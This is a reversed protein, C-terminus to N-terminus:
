ASTPQVTVRRTQRGLPLRGRRPRGRPARGAVPHAAGGAGSARGPRGARPQGGGRAAAALAARGALTGPHAPTPPLAGRQGAGGAEEGRALRRLEEYVLWRLGLNPRHLPASPAFVPRRRTRPDHCGSPTHSRRLRGPSGGRVLSAESSPPLARREVPELFGAPTPSSIRPRATALSLCCKRRQGVPRASKLFSTRSRPLRRWSARPYTVKQPGTTGASRPPSRSPPSGLNVHSPLTSRPQLSLIGKKRRPSPARRVLHRDPLWNLGQGHLPRL